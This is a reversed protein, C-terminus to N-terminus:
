NAYILRSQGEQGGFVWRAFKKQIASTPNFSFSYAERRRCRTILCALVAADLNHLVFHLTNDLAKTFKDDMCYNTGERMEVHKRHEGLHALDGCSVVFAEHLEFKQGKAKGSVLDQ